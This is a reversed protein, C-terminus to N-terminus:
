GSKKLPFVDQGPVDEVLKVAYLVGTGLVCAKHAHTRLWLEFIVYWTSATTM